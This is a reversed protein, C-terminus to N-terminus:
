SVAILSVRQGQEDRSIGGARPDLTRVGDVLFAYKHHGHHLMACLHWAGDAHKKMPHADAQWHNFEGVLSVSRAEPAMCIFNVPVAAKKAVLRKMSGGM